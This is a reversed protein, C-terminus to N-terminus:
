CAFGRYGGVGDLIHIGRHLISAGQNRMREESAVIRWRGGM